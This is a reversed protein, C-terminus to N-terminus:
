YSKLLMCVFKHLKREIQHNPFMEKKTTIANIHM